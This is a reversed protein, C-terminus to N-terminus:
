YENQGMIRKHLSLRPRSRLLEFKWKCRNRSKNRKCKFICVIGSRDGAAEGDIDQGLQLWSTTSSNYQYVRVHGSDKGNGDNYQAGIAVISGDSSLSVYNGSQDGGSEGNIDNGLRNWGIPGFTSSSQDTVAVIKNVDYQYVRVHGQITYLHIVVAIM